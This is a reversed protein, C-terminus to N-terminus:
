PKLGGILQTTRFVSCIELIYQTQESKEVHQCNIEQKLRLFEQRYSFNLYDLMYLVASFSLASIKEGERSIQM